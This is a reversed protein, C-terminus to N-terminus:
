RYGGPERAQMDAIRGALEVADAGLQHETLYFVRSRVREEAWPLASAGEIAASRDVEFILCRGNATGGVTVSLISAHLVLVSAGDADIELGRDTLRRLAIRQGYRVDALVQADEHAFYGAGGLGLAVLAWGVLAAGTGVAGMLLLWAVSAALTAAAAVRISAGMRIRRLTGTEEVSEGVLLMVIAVIGLGAPSALFAAVGRVGRPMLAAVGFCTAVYAYVPTRRKGGRM